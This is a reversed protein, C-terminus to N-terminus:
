EEPYKYCNIGIITENGKPDEVKINGGTMAIMLTKGSKSSGFTKSTDIVMTLLPGDWTIKINKKAKDKEEKTMM